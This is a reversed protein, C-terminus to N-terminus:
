HPAKPREALGGRFHIQVVLINRSETSAQHQVGIIDWRSMGTDQRASKADSPPSGFSNAASPRRRSSPPASRRSGNSTRPASLMWWNLQIQRFSQPISIRAHGTPVPSRSLSTGPPFIKHAEAATTGLQLSVARLSAGDGTEHWSPPSFREAAPTCAHHSSLFEQELAQRRRQDNAEPNKPAVWWSYGFYLPRPSGGLFPYLYSGRLM